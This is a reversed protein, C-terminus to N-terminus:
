LNGLCGIEAIEGTSPDVLAHHSFGRILARLSTKPPACSGSVENGLRFVFGSQTLFGGPEAKRLAGVDALGKADGGLVSFRRVVHNHDTQAIVICVASRPGYNRVASDRLGDPAPLGTVALKNAPTMLEVCANAGPTGARVQLTVGNALVITEPGVRFVGGDGLEPTGAMTVAHPQWDYGPAFTVQRVRGIVNWSQTRPLPASNAHSSCAACISVM